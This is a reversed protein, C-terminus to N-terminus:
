SQNSNGSHGFIRTTLWQKGKEGLHMWLLLPEDSYNKMIILSLATPNDTFKFVGSRKFSENPALFFKLNKSDSKSRIMICRPTYNFLLRKMYLLAAILGSYMQCLDTAQLFSSHTLM